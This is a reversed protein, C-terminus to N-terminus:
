LLALQIVEDPSGAGRRSNCIFHALRVNAPTDPGGMSLPIVHDITPAGHDPVALTMDVKRRCIGCRQRDREAIEALTYPEHELEKGARGREYLRRARRSSERCRDCRHHRRSSTPQGCVCARPGRPARQENWWQDAHQKSCFKKRAPSGCILCPKPIPPSKPTRPPAAARRAAALASRKANKRAWIARQRTTRCPDCRRAIHGHVPVGCDPCPHEGKRPGGGLRAGRRVAERSCDDSCTSRPRERTDGFRADCVTCRKEQRALARCQRCKAQGEPLTGPGGYMLRGCPGACLKDRPRPM